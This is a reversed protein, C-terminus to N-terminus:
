AGIRATKPDMLDTNQGVGGVLHAATQDADHTIQGASPVMMRVVKSQAARKNSTVELTIRSNAHRLLEQVTKVDEGNAKLLTGFTHRFTRVPLSGTKKSQTHRRAVGGCYTGRKAEILPHHSDPHDSSALVANRAILNVAANADGLLGCPKHQVADTLDHVLIRGDLEGAFNLRILGEDATLSAVHVNSLFGTADRTGSGFVLNSNHANELAATPNHRRNYGVALLVRQLGFHLLMNLRSRSQIGM